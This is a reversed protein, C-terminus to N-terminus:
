APQGRLDLNPDARHATPCPTSTATPATPRPSRPPSGTADPIRGERMLYGYVLRRRGTRRASGARDKPLRSDPLRGMPREIPRLAMRAHRACRADRAAHDLVASTRPSAARPDAREHPPPVALSM